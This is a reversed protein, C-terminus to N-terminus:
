TLIALWIWVIIGTVILWFFIKAKFQANKEMKERIERQEPTEAM